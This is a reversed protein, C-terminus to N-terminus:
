PLESGRKSPLDAIVCKTARVIASRLCRGCARPFGILKSLLNLDMREQIVENIVTLVDSIDKSGVKIGEVCCDAILDLLRLMNQERDEHVELYRQNAAAMEARLAPKHIALRLADVVGAADLKEIFLARFGLREIERNSPIDSLLPTAGAAAGELISASGMDNLRVLSTFIDTVSVLQQVSADSIHGDFIRIRDDLGKASIRERAEAVYPESGGQGGLAFFRLREDEEALQLFAELAIDSGWRPMFRRINVIILSSPDIAYEACFTRREQVSARRFLRRDLGWTVAHVKDHPVGFRSIVHRAGTTAGPVILDVGNLARRVMEFAVSSTEAFRFVDGGWPMLVKPITPCLATALGYAFVDQGFVFAPNLQAVFPPISVARVFSGAFSPHYDRHEPPGMARRYRSRESHNVYREFRLWHERLSSLKKRMEPSESDFSQLIKTGDKLKPPGQWRRTVIVVELGQKRFFAALRQPFVNGPNGIIVVIKNHSWSKM